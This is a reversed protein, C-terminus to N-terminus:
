ADTFKGDPTVPKPPVSNESSSPDRLEAEGAHAGPVVPQELLPVARIGLPDNREADGVEGIGLLPASSIRRLAFRPKVATVIGSCGCRWPRGGTKSAYQSGIMRAQASVASRASGARRSTPSGASAAPRASARARRWSTGPRHRELRARLPQPAAPRRPIGLQLIAILSPPMPQTAPRISRRSLMMLASPSRSPSARCSSRARGVHRRRLKQNQMISSGDVIEVRWAIPTSLM